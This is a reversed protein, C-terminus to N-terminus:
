LPRDSSRIVEGNYVTRHVHGFGRPDIQYRANTRKWYDTQIGKTQVEDRWEQAWEDVTWTRRKFFFADQDWVEGVEGTFTINITGSIVARIIDSFGDPLHWPLRIRCLFRRDFLRSTPCTNNVRCQKLMAEQMAAAYKLIDWAELSERSHGDIFLRFSGEPMGHARLLLIESFWPVVADIIQFGAIASAGGCHRDPHGTPLLNALLNIHREIRLQPNAQCM